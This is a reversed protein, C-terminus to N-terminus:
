GEKTCQKLEDVSLVTRGLRNSMNVIHPTKLFSEALEEDQSFVDRTKGYMMMKGDKIVAVKHAYESVVWMTHTIMIITHGQQNLKKVLDMMQKQEKYDLGTTPEDLIIM